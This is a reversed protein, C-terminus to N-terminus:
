ILRAMKYKGPEKGPESTVLLKHLYKVNTHCIPKKFKIMLDM